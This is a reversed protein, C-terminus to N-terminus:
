PARPVLVTIASPRGEGRDAGLYLRGLADFAMAEHRGYGTRGPLGPPAPEGPEVEGEVGRLVGLLDWAAEVALTGGADARAVHAERRWRDLVWVAGDPALCADSQSSLLSVEPHLPAAVILGDQRLSRLAFSSGDRVLRLAVCPPPAANGPTREKFAVVRWADPAAGEGPLVVVGEFRDNRGDDPLDPVRLLALAEATAEDGAPYRVVYLRNAGDDAADEPNREGALLYLDPAGPVPVVAELDLASEGEPREPDARPIRIRLAVARQADAAVTGDPRFHLAVRFLAGEVVQRDPDYPGEDTVVLLEVRESTGGPLVAFGSTEEIPVEVTVLPRFGEEIARPPRPPEPAAELCLALLPIAALLLATRMARM